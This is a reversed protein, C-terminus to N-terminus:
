KQEAIWAMLEKSLEDRETVAEILTFCKQKQADKLAEYLQRCNEVRYSKGGWLEALRAYPWDVLENFQAEPHFLQEMGWRRNNVVIFIPNVNYRPCHCIEQGTMQFAGDGVLVLPRKHTALQYGIAAPVAFGMTGYFSPALVSDTQISLTSFLTGGTDAIVPMEGYEGFLWNVADILEGMILPQATTKCTRNVQLQAKSPLPAKKKEANAKKLELVLSTLPVNDLSEDQTNVQQSFCWVIKGRKTASLKAGLNVDSLMEGLILVFDSDAVLEQAVKNGAAGLYVEFFNVDDKPLHDRALVTSVVPLNLNKAWQLIQTKLDFRDSEVGMMVVPKQAQQISQIITNTAQKLNVQNVATKNKPTKVLSITENVRDAPIEIYVPLMQEQCVSLAEAIRIQATKTDDLLVAKGTVESLANLLSSCSKVTHHLFFDGKRASLPPGGVILVLPTREAYACAVANVVNLVGPGYTVVAVTPKRSARADAVAAFGAGAEHSFTCLEINADDELLKFFKIVMDGPIGYVRQAGLRKIEELLHQGITLPKHM